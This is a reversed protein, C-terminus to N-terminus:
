NPKPANIVWEGEKAKQLLEPTVEWGRKGEPCRILGKRKLYKLHVHTTKVPLSSVVSVRRGSILEGRPTIRHIAYLAQVVKTRSHGM